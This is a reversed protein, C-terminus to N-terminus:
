PLQKDMLTVGVSGKTILKFGDWVYLPRKFVKGFTMFRVIKGGRVWVIHGPKLTKSAKAKNPVM